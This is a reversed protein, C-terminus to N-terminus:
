VQQFAIWGMNGDKLEANDVENKWHPCPLMVHEFDVCASVQLLNNRVIRDRWSCMRDKPTPRLLGVTLETWDTAVEFVVTPQEGLITLGDRCHQMIAEVTLAESERFFPSNGFHTMAYLICGVSWYDVAESLSSPSTAHLIEPCAYDSSGRPIQLQQQQQGQQQREPATSSAEVTGLCTMEIASTFDALKLQGTDAELLCNSPKLDCHLIQKETHLFQVAQFIQSAYFPVSHFFWKQRQQKRQQQTATTNSADGISNEEGISCKGVQHLLLGELDGGSCLEMVLYLHQTDYFAAWLNVIWSSSTSSKSQKNTTNSQLLIRKEAMVAQLLWPHKHFSIQEVVKIACKRKSLKHVAYVVHAFSGQGITPGVMYERATSMTFFTYLYANVFVFLVRVSIRECTPKSTEPFLLRIAWTRGTTLQM